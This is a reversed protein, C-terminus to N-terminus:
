GKAREEMFEEIREVAKKLNEMSTAYSLRFYDDFGSGFPTGPTLAVGKEMLLEEVFGEYAKAFVYFAGEPVALDFYKGLRRVVFDRRRRFEDVMDRVFERDKGDALYEAVAKQAFAPACVGNVQHVKLMQDLLGKEAIVFGIRWGTMALTKSFANIVVANEKGALTGPKKDYYIRDYVEDSIVVASHDEAIEYVEDIERQGMVAGSPNTPFNLILASVSSDMVGEVAESQLLFNSDSTNVEVPRASCLKVYTFYSLFSPTHLVVKSNEEMFALSANLLAESAGVTIMVEGSEVGYREAIVERLEELGMNSTYHTYGKNMYEYALEIIEPPTDFDPEGISLNIVERGEKKAREVIEFMRRIMSTSIESVRRAPM